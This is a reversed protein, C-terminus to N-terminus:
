NVVKGKIKLTKPGYSTNIMGEKTKDLHIFLKVDSVMHSTSGSDIIFVKPHNSSYTSFSSVNSGQSRKLFAKRKEPFLMWCYEKQHTTSFPNHAGNKCRTDEKTFMASEISVAKDGSSFKLENIHIELHKILTKPNIDKGNKSHTIKQKINELNKPVRRLLEYTLIDEPIEIGVDEM